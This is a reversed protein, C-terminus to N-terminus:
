KLEFHPVGRHLTGNVVVDVTVHTGDDTLRTVSGTVLVGDAQFSVEDENHLKQADRYRM